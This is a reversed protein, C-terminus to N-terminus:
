TSPPSSSRPQGTAKAREPQGRPGPGRVAHPARPHRWGSTGAAKLTALVPTSNQPATWLRGSTTQRSPRARDEHGARPQEHGQDLGPTQDLGPPLGAGVLEGPEWGASTGPPSSGGARRGRDRQGHHDDIEVPELLDVVREPVPHAVGAACPPHRSCSRSTRCWTRRGAPHRRTRRARPRRRGDGGALDALPGPRRTGAPGATRASRLMSALMPMEDERGRVVQSASMLRASAAIYTAFFVPGPDLEVDLVPVLAADVPQGQERLQTGREPGSSPRVVLQHVPDRVATVPASASIRHCCGVRPGTAPLTGGPRM